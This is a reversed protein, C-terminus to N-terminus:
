SSFQTSLHPPQKEFRKLKWLSKTIQKNDHSIKKPDFGIPVSNLISSITNTPQLLKRKNLLIGMMRKKNRRKIIQNKLFM